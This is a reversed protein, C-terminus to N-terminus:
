SIFGKTYQAATNIAASHRWGASIQSWTTISGIVTTPSSRDSTTNDGLQAYTNQGWAYLVGTSTLGLSHRGGASVQSWNTIGGVVVVPSSTSTGLTGLQSSANTGWAYSIGASTLGLSHFAGASISSWTTIGGVVTVPSSRSSTTNGGLQGYANNGWAYAIGSNRIALSFNFGLSVQTWNTIGGVVTIPSPRSSTTNDGLAGSVNVGWAYLIGATTIGLNHNWGAAIRSWNTIGGLIITPSSRAYGAGSFNSGWGYVDGNSRLAISHNEGAAIQAWDTIVSAITVPSLRSLTTNDGLQGSSNLGWAYAVGNIDIALTHNIGCAIRSWSAISGAVTVPSSRNSTTNDGLRGNTNLGWTYTPISQVEYDSTFDLRWNTGDSFYYKQTATVYYIIGKNNAASPLAAVTAASLVQVDDLYDGVTVLQALETSTPTGAIILDAKDDITKIPIM